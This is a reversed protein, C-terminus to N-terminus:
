QNVFFKWRQQIREAFYCRYPNATRLYAHALRVPWDDQRCEDLLCICVGGAIESGNAPGEESKEVFFFDPKPWDDDTRSYEAQQFAQELEVRTEESPEVLYDDSYSIHDFENAPFWRHVKLIRAEVLQSARHLCIVIEELVGEPTPVPPPGRQGRKLGEKVGSCKADYVAELTTESFEVNEEFLGIGRNQVLQDLDPRLDLPDPYFGPQGFSVGMCEDKDQKFELNERRPCISCSYSTCEDFFGRVRITKGDYKWPDYALDELDILPPDSKEAVTLFGKPIGFYAFGAVAAIAAFGVFALFRVFATIM